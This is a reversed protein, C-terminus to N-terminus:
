SWVDEMYRGAARLDKVYATAEEESKGGCQRVVEVLAKNVDRAMNKADSRPRHGARALQDHRGV